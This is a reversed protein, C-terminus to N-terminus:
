AVSIVHIIVKSFIPRCLRMKHTHELSTIKSNSKTRSNLVVFSVNMHKQITM